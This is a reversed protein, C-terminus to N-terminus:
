LDVQRVLRTFGAELDKAFHAKIVLAGGKKEMMIKKGTQVNQILNQDAEPGFNM